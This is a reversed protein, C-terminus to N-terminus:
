SIVNESHMILPGEIKSSRKGRNRRRFFVFRSVQPKCEFGKHVTYAVTLAKMNVVDKLVVYYLKRCRYGHRIALCKYKITQVSSLVTM